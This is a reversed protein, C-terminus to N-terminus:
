NRHRVVAERRKRKREEKEEKSPAVILPQDPKKTKKLKQYLECAQHAAVRGSARGNELNTHSWEFNINREVQIEIITGTWKPGNPKSNNEKIHYEFLKVDDEGVTAAFLECLNATSDLM